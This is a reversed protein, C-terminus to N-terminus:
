ELKVLILKRTNQGCIPVTCLHAYGNFLFIISMLVSMVLCVFYGIVVHM